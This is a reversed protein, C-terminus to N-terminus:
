DVCSRGRDVLIVSNILKSVAVYGVDKLFQYVSSETVSELDKDLIEVILFEPRYKSWDNSRLVEIEVGEVDITLLDIKTRDDLYTDFIEKLTVTRTVVTEVLRHGIKTYESAIEPSSTNLASESFIYFDQVSSSSSCAIELNIDAPREKRFADMSHPMADINIGRWGRLYLLYTNSFRRPHHAGIDVYFGANRSGLLRLLLLDEAEQGYVFQGMVSESFSKLNEESLGRESVVKVIQSFLKDTQDDTLAHAEIRSIVNDAFASPYNRAILALLLDLARKPLKTLSM